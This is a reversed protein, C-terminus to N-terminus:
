KGKKESGINLVRQIEERVITKVDAMEPLAPLTELLQEMIGREHMLQMATRYELGFVWSSLLLKFDNVYQMDAYRVSEGHLVNHLIQPTYLEAGDKLGLTVVDSKSGDHTFNSVLVPFIDLKDSDRVIETAIRIHTPLAEPLSFKNHLAVVARVAQQMEKSEGALVNEYRLIRCGLLGHNVSNRDSYTKYIKYQEFRGVDHFLAGLLVAKLVDSDLSLTAAIQTANDLVRLTHDRKLVIYQQESSDQQTFREVYQVFWELYPSLESLM